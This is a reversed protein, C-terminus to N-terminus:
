SEDKQHTLALLQNKRDRIDALKNNLEAIVKREEENLSEVANRVITDNSIAAFQIKVPESIRVRGEWPQERRQGNPLLQGHEDRDNYHVEFVTFWNDCSLNAYLAVERPQAIADKFDKM